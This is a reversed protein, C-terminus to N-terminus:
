RLIDIKQKSMGNTVEDYVNSILSMAIPVPEYTHDGRFEYPILTKCLSQLLITELSVFLTNTRRM